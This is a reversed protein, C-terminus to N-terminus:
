AVRSAKWLFYYDSVELDSRKDIHKNAFSLASAIVAAGVPIILPMKDLMGITVTTAGVSVNLATNKVLARRSSRMRREIDNLEPKVVDEVVSNAVNVPTTGGEASSLDKRIARKLATRFQEFSPREDERLKLFDKMPIENLIPLNLRLVVDTETIQAPSVEKALWSADVTEALPLGLYHAASVDTVLASSYLMVLQKAIDRKSPKRSLGVHYRVYPEPMHPGDVAVRYSDGVRSIEVGANDIIWTVAQERDKKKFFSNIGLAEAEARFHDECFRPKTTFVVFPEAGSTRLYLLVQTEREIGAVLYDSDNDEIADLFNFVSHGELVVQDFYHWMRPFTDEIRQSVCDLDSCQIIGSLDTKRGALIGDSIEIPELEDEYNSVEENVLEVLRHYCASDRLAKRVQNGSKIGSEDLWRYLWYKQPTTM